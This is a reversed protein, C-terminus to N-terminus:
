NKPLLLNLKKSLMELCEKLGFFRILDTRDLKERINQPLTEETLGERMLRTEEQTFTESQEIWNIYPRNEPCIRQCRMCGVLCEVWSTDLWQPFDLKGSYGSYLTLCRDQKILHGNKPIAKSPCAASCASCTRCQEMLQPEQWTDQTCPMDIYYTVLMHLSGYGPVYSINNRGYKALGCRTAAIKQPIRAYELQYGYPSVIENLLHKVKATYEWFGIYTPPILLPHISGNWEFGITEQPRPVATVFISASDSFGQPLPCDFIRTYSRYVIDPLQGTSHLTEIENKLDERRRASIIRYPYPFNEFNPASMKEGYVM